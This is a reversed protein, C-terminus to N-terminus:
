RETRTSTAALKNAYESLLQARRRSMPVDEYGKTIANM